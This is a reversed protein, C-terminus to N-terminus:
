VGTFKYVIKSILTTMRHHSHIIDIKEDKVINWLITINKIINIPSKNDVNNIEYHKIGRNRFEDVLAGGHSAVIVQIDENMEKCLKLICKTVGGVSMVNNLYLIRM